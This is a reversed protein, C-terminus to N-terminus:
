LHISSLYRREKGEERVRSLSQGSVLRCEVMAVKSEELVISIDENVMRSEELLIRCEVMAGKSEELVISIDENVIRSEELLISCEVM